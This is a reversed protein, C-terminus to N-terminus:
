KEAKKIPFYYYFSISLSLINLKLDVDFTNIASNAVGNVSQKKRSGSLGAVNVGIETAFGDVVFVQIGPNLGLQITNKNNYTRTLVDQSFSEVLSRDATWGVGAINYLNFRKNATLPIFFKVYLSSTIATGAENVNAEVGDADETVKTIRSQDYRMGGGIALLPKVFYGGTVLFNYGEKQQEKLTVVLVNENESDRLSAGGTIGFFVYGKDFTQKIESLDQAHGRSCLSVLPVTLLWKALNTFQMKM